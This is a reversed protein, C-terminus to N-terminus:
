FPLDDEEEAAPKSINRDVIDQISDSKNQQNKAARIRIGGVLKGQFQVSPDNYLVVKKGIWDDTEEAGRAQACLQANTWNLVLGKGSPADDFRLVHKMERPQGDMSLDEQEVSRITVLAGRGVDDKTLYKSERLNSIHM